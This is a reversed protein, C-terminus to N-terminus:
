QGYTKSKNVSNSNCHYTHDLAETSAPLLQNMGDTSITTLPANNTFRKNNAKKEVSISNDENRLEKLLYNFTITKEVLEPTLILLCKLFFSAM